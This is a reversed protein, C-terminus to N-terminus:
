HTQIAREGNSPEMDFSDLMERVEIRGLQLLQALQGESLLERRWAENALLALRLSTPSNAETNLHAAIRDGLVQRVQGDTIGGNEQFWDWTGGKTLKLEELRRVLAERSVGFLHALVIVHRRTLFSSGATVEKFREALARAPTLFARAFVDAYREERSSLDENLELVEAHRRSSILHGLEHAATQVRRERPHNLNILICAGVGDDYAFLGSIRGEIPRLYLRVGMEVELLAFIDHVPAQGLGLRQRLETADEEAQRRVDGPLLLREPPYNKTRVVGLLNELEVEAQALHTLLKAAQEIEHDTKSHLRRFQPVMDVFVAEARLLANVSTRYLKAFSRLEDIRVRRQGQEIAVITTRAVNLKSAVEAQTLGANERALRLRESVMSPQFDTQVKSM